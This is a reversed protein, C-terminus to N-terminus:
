RASIGNKLLIGSNVPLRYFGASTSVVEKVPAM